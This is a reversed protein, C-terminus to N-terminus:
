PFVDSHYVNHWKELEIVAAGGRGQDQAMISLAGIRDKKHANIM